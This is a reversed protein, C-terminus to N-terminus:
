LSYKGDTVELLFKPSNMIGTCVRKRNWRQLKNEKQKVSLLMNVITETQETPIGGCDVHIIEALKDAQITISADIGNYLIKAKPHKVMRLIRDDDIPILCDPSSSDFDFCQIEFGGKEQSVIWPRMKTKYKEIFFYHKSASGKSSGVFLGLSLSGLIIKTTNDM